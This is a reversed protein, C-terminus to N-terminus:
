EHKGNEMIFIRCEEYNLTFDYIARKWEAPIYMDRLEDLAMQYLIYSELYRRLLDHRVDDSFNANGYAFATLNKYGMMEFQLREVYSAVSELVEITALTPKM